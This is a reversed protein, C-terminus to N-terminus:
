GASAKTVREPMMDRLAHRGRLTSVYVAQVRKGVCANVIYGRRKLDTLVHEADNPHIGLATAVTDRTSPMTALFSLAREPRSNRRLHSRNFTPTQGM